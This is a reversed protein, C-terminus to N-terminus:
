KLQQNVVQSIRRQSWRRLRQSRLVRRGLWDTVILALGLRRIRVRACYWWDQFRLWNQRTATVRLQPLGSLAYGRQVLMDGIRAEALRVQHDPLKSRWQEILSVDPAGYTSRTAYNLMAPDYDVGIFECLRALTPEPSRILDEYFVEIRRDAPLKKSLSQWSQEAKIWRDVATWCNGAWGMQICSRAVDRGDRVLYIFRADPWIFPIREFRHHVTAGALDKGDRDRKQRLFSDVLHPYDLSKDIRIGALQFVRNTELFRYYDVLRPYEGTQSVLDVAFEFEFFFSIRPHHDLMLRLLTTGSRMSGVLFVPRQVMAADGGPASVPKVRVAQSTM